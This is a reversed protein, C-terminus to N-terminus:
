NDGLTEDNKKKLEDIEKQLQQIQEILNLILTDRQSLKASIVQESAIENVDISQM